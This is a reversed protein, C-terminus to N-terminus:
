FIEFQSLYDNLRVFERARKDLDISPMKSFFKSLFLCRRRDLEKPDYDWQCFKSMFRELVFYDDDLERILQNYPKLYALSVTEPAYIYMYKSFFDLVHYYTGDFFSLNRLLNDDNEYTRLAAVNCVYRKVASRIPSTISRNLSPFIRDLVYKSMQLHEVKGTFHNLFKPDTDLSRRLGPALVDLFLAGIAGGRNSSVIFTKNQGDPVNSDKGLYKSTYYFAKDDRMDIQRHMEFGLNWSKELIEGIQKYTVMDTQHLNWLICHYHPRSTRKGYEAVCLYRIPYPYGNRQLNIRLRKFFLQVDRLRVGDFPKNQENYTLTLFIPNCKYTMSELKCRHVLSDVKSKKCNDCHGCRVKLYMPFCEGSDPDFFYSNNIIDDSVSCEKVTSPSAFKVESGYFDMSEFKYVTKLRPRLSRVTNDFYGLRKNVKVIKGDLVYQGYRSIMEGALPHLIVRPNSCVIQNNEMVSLLFFDMLWVFFMLILMISLM